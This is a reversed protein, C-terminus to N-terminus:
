RFLVHLLAVSYIEYVYVNTKIIAFAAVFDLHCYMMLEGIRELPTKM